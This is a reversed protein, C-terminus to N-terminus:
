AGALAGGRSNEPKEPRGFLCRHDALVAAHRTFKGLSAMLGVMADSRELLDRRGLTGIVSQRVKGDLRQSDVLQLYDYNGNHKVRIFM